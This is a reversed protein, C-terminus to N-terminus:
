EEEDYDWMDYEMELMDDDSWYCYIGMFAVHEDGYADSVVNIAFEKAVEEPLDAPVDVMETYWSGSDSGHSIGVYVEVIRTRVTKNEESM